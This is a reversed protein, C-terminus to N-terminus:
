SAVGPSIGCPVTISEFMMRSLPMQTLAARMCEVVRENQLRLRSREKEHRVQRTSLEGLTTRHPCSFCDLQKKWALVAPVVSRRLRHKLRGRAPNLKTRAAAKARKDRERWTTQRRTKQRDLRWFRHALVIPETTAILDM